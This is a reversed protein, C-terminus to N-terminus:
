SRKMRMLSYAAAAAIVLAGVFADLYFGPAGTLLLVDQIWYILAAGLVIGLVTGRGGTLMLGGVVCAAIAQLPLTLGGDPSVVGTRSAALVAALSACVGSITFALLKVRAVRIGNAVAATRNGGVAFVHNGVSFRQLFVYVVIAAGVFWLVEAAVVDIDGATIRTFFSSEPAFPISSSNILLAASAWIGTTGLTTIFSPVRFALTIVGNLLGISAGVALCALAAVFPDLGGDALKAMVMGSFVYNAGVSLDFEGAIMLVGVGLAPIGVLPIVQLAISINASSTYPFAAPDVQAYVISGIQLVLFLVLVDVASQRLRYTRSRSREAATLEREQHPTPALRAAIAQNSVSNSV